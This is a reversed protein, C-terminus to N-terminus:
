GGFKEVNQNTEEILQEPVYEKGAVRLQRTVENREPLFRRLPVMGFRSLEGRLSRSM